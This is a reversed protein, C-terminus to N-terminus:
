SQPAQMSCHLTFSPALTYALSVPLPESHNILPGDRVPTVAILEVKINTNSPPRGLFLPTALYELYKELHNQSQPLCYWVDRVLIYAGIFQTLPGKPCNQSIPLFHPIM